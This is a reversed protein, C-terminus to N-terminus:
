GYRKELYMIEEFRELFLAEAEDPFLPVIPQDSIEIGEEVVWWWADGEEGKPLLVERESRLAILDAEKVRTYSEISDHVNFKRMVAEECRKEIIKFEPLMRKLPSPIDGVFAEQADHLLAHLAFGAPVHHSVYVCHQAVSYFPKCHGGYRCTNSLAYAIDEISFSDPDPDEFNFYNGSATMIEPKM